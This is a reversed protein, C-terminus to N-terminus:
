YHKCVEDSLVKQKLQDAFNKALLHVQVAKKTHAEVTQNTDHIIDLADSNYRKVVWTQDKFDKTISTAKYAKRFAGEGLVTESVTFEVPTPVNSWLMRHIDFTYLNIVTTHSQAVKGLKLIQSVSLSKPYVTEAKRKKPSPLSLSQGVQSKSFNSYSHIRKKGRPEENRAENNADHLIEEPITESPVFRLHILKSNPLQEMEKCSPGQDGALIDCTMESGVHPAFHEECARKINKISLEDFPFSVFERPGMRLYKQAKGAVEQSLRQVTLEKTVPKGTDEKKRGMRKNKMKDKFKQWARQKDAM